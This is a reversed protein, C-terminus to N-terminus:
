PASARRSVERCGSISWVSASGLKAAPAAAPAAEEEDDDDGCAVALAMGVLALLAVLYIPRHWKM